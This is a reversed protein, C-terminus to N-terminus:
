VLGVDFFGVLGLAAKIHGACAGPVIKEDCTDLRRRLKQLVKGSTLM